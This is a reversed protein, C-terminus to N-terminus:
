KFLGKFFGKKEEKEKKETSKRKEAQLERDLNKIREELKSIHAETQLVAKNVESEAYEISSQMSNLLKEKDVVEKVYDTFYGITSDLNHVVRTISVEGVGDLYIIDGVKYPENWEVQKSCIVYRKSTSSNRILMMAWRNSAYGQKAEISFNVDEEVGYFIGKHGM